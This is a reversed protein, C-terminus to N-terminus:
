TVWSVKKAVIGALDFEQEAHYMFSEGMVMAVYISAM